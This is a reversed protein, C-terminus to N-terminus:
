RTSRVVSVSGPGIQPRQLRGTEKRGFRACIPECEFSTTNEIAQGNSTQRFNPCTGGSPKDKYVGSTPTTRRLRACDRRTAIPLALRSTKPLRGLVDPGGAFSSPLVTAPRLARMFGDTDAFGIFELDAVYLGNCSTCCVPQIGGAQTQVPPTTDTHQAERHLLLEWIKM